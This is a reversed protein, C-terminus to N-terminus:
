EGDDFISRGAELNRKMQERRDLFENTGTLGGTMERFMKDIQEQEPDQVRKTFAVAGITFEAVVALKVGEPVPMPVVAARDLYVGIKKLQEELVPIKESVADIEEETPEDGDQDFFDM